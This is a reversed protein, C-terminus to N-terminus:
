DIYEEKDHSVPAPSERSEAKANRKRRKKEARDKLLDRIEEFEWGLKRLKERQEKPPLKNLLEQFQALKREIDRALSGKVGDGGQGYLLYEETTELLKAAQRLHRAGPDIGPENEWKSIASKGVGIKDGLDTQSLGASKRADKLRKGFGKSMDMRFILSKLAM